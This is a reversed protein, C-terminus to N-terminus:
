SEPRKRSRLAKMTPVEDMSYYAFMDRYAMLVWPSFATAGNKTFVVDKAIYVCAHIPTQNADYLVLLDGLVPEGNVPVYQDQLYRLRAAVDLFRQEPPHRLFNLATWFCDELDADRNSSRDPFAYLREHCFRPLLYGLDISGGAPSQRLSDLLPLMSGIRGGTNWYNTVAGLDDGRAIRLFARQAPMRSLAKLVPRREGAPIRDALLGPDSFCLMPGRLYTLSRILRETEVGVGADVFWAHAFNTAIKFPDNKFPNGPIRALFSYIQSRGSPTLNLLLEIPPTILRAGEEVKWNGEDLLWARQSEALEISKFLGAISALPTEGFDWPVTTEFYADVDGFLRDPRELTIQEIQLRGWPMLGRPTEAVSTETKTVDASAAPPV